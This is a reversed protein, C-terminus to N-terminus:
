NNNIDKTFALESALAIHDSGWKKTPFGPTWQMAHKPIPALVRVTQLGESRWIYDVTGLFRRNYSTVLPEGNSDRTGSFEKVETYTSKLQLSHQILNCDESGTATAIEMPSWVSPDYTVQEVEPDEPDLPSSIDDLVEDSPLQFQSNHSSSFKNSSHDLDSTVSQGSNEPYLDENGYLAAVFANNDENISGGEVMTETLDELSLNDMKGEVEIDIGTSLGSFDVQCPVSPSVRDKVGSQSSQNGSRGPPSIEVSDPSHTQCLSRTSSIESKSANLFEPDTSVRNSLDDMVIGDLDTGENSHITVDTGRHEMETVDSCANQLCSDNSPAFRQMDDDMQNLPIKCESYCHSSSKESCDVSIFSASETEAKAVDVANHPIETTVEDHQASGIGELQLNNCSKDSLDRMTDSSQSLNNISADKINKDLNIQKHTDSQSANKDMGAEKVDVTVPVQVSSDGSQVGTNNTNNYPRPPPTIQASAQGSVKDRDVGSLDLKQESIFNYLPSKPTCNFDGCLVVLADDWSKSVAHARELLRRVQGLKIEGRKPNYLVHINCVVVKNASYFPTTSVELVCIQAVNDRLEHKNFEISEEHLLKFRSTRWFIACGDIANGTRMKWIGSYGRCKLQEELDQFKDVEQFCMIDASWLGLEFILNKKRWEWNMMHHPIHYYLNRHTSALYDALINYSLVIFRESHPPPPTKAYEWERYDWPKSNRPRFPRAAQNQDFSQRPRQYRNHSHFPPPQRFQQQNYNYPSPPRPNYGFQQPQFSGQNSFTGRQIGLNGERVSNLHSDGTVLQGRGGSNARDSFGRRWQSRGGRYPRGSSSMVATNAYATAVLFKLRLSSHPRWMSHFLELSASSFSRPQPRMYKCSGYSPDTTTVQGSGSFDCSATSAGHTQFYSNMAFAAHSKVTNPDYCPGGPQIPKCDVQGCAYDLNAQLQASSAADKPICFDKNAPSPNPTPSSQEHRLLGVNYVPTFDTKFLGWYKEDIPGIKANENFLAFMYTEFSRNPMLPTGKGAVIEKIVHSNYSISNEMTAFPRTADGQTPWGTEGIAIEVDGFGLAKMAMYNSDMLADFMNTYTKRTYKDYVGRNTKFLAYNLRRSLDPSFYPYPNVMFPSKTRQHFQLIPAFFNKDYFRMLSPITERRFINLAHATTVKIDPMGAKVLAYHLSNMAPVLNNIWDTNKSFLVESGVCVYKFKTQPHFPSIHEAVWRMAADNNTLAPIDGNGVTVTVSIGTNAFAKIVDPNTDYIKVSDFITRTKIFNAVAYPSPLNDAAMGYNVGIATTTTFLHLFTTLLLFITTM